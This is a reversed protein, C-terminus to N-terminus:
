RYFLYIYLMVNDCKSLNVVLKYYNVYEVVFIFVFFKAFYTKEECKFKCLNEM